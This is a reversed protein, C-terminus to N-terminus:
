KDDGDLNYQILSPEGILTNYNGELFKIGVWIRSGEECHESTKPKDLKYKDRIFDTFKRKTLYEPIHYEECFKKFKDYLPIKDVEGDSKPKLCQETFYEEPKRFIDYDPPNFSLKGKDLVRLLGEIAWNLLASMEYKNSCLKKDYELITGEAGQKFRKCFPIVKLRDKMGKSKDECEFLENASFILTAYSTFPFASQFKNEGTVSSNGSLDKLISMDKIGLRSTEGSVNLHKQYLSGTAFKDSALAHLRRNSINDIGVLNCLINIIVSKANGGVGYLVFIVRLPYSRYLSLGFMEQINDVYVDPVVKKIAKCMETGEFKADPNYDVPFKYSFMYDPSHPLLEKGTGIKTIDVVGNNCNLYDLPAKSDMENRDIWKSDKIYNLVEKKRTDLTDCKNKLYWQVLNKIIREGGTQFWGDKYYKIYDGKTNTEDKITIFNNGHEKMIIDGLSPCRVKLVGKGGNQLEKRYLVGYKELLCDRKCIKKFDRSLKMYQCHSTNSRIHECGLEELKYGDLMDSQAKEWTYGTKDKLKEHYIKYGSSILEDKSLGRKFASAGLMLFSSNREGNEAGHETFHKVCPYPKPPNLSTNTEGEFEM